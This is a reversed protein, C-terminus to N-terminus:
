AARGEEMRAAAALLAREVMTGILERRYESSGHMDGTPNIGRVADAAAERAVAPTLAQGALADEAAAAGLPIPGAGLLAISARAVTGGAGNPELLVAAGGLAFDGQRRAYETFAWGAADPLAPVEIECLLEDDALGSQLQDIFMDEATLARAGREKSRVHFRAGLATMAVPLEAAPDSHAVSGGVTGRNRIQAHGVWRLAETVLPWRERVLPSAEAQAHRTLAGIHLRGDARRLYSLEQVDNIDVLVEPRALRFNMLPVLSQGGALVKGDEGHDALLALAEDITRPAEYEFPAPKM